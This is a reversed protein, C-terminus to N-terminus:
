LHGPTLSLLVQFLRSYLVYDRLLSPDQPQLSPNEHEDNSLLSIQNLVNSHTLNFLKLIYKLTYCKSWNIQIPPKCPLRADNDNENDNDIGANWGNVITRRGSM